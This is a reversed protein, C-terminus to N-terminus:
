PENSADTEVGQKSSHLILMVERNLQFAEARAAVADVRTECAALLKGKAKLVPYLQQGQESVTTSPNAYFTGHVSM